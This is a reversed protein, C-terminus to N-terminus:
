HVATPAVAASTTAGAGIKGERFEEGTERMARLLAPWDEFDTAFIKAVMRRTLEPVLRNLTVPAYGMEDVLRAWYLNNSDWSEALLRSSYGSFAPFPKVNLLERAYSQALTRHPVGFDRSLRDWSLEQPSQRYLGDLAQGSSGWASKDDPFRRRFEATLYFTDAPTVQALAEKSRGSRLEQELELAREPVMRDAFINMVKKRLDENSAAATILEEGAVQHLAVAHLETKSVDWWRPLIANGLLIPVTERWILAQVNEPAIFDQEAESLAYPLDALSGVFHAGGGAPSGQGFLQPSRWLGEVGAVTEGSFDHSRVLLSNTRLLQAAPPEYYAYNLGVLTDRLFPTLEGRAEELQKASPSSKLVKTLDTQMQLETHRNNYTGAAWETRESSTFMPRPMEFERLEGALPLLSSGAVKGRAVDNLGKGLEVLTDLSVLRQGDMVSRIGKAVEEHVRQGEPDPQRPGALLEIIDDESITSRGTAARLVALLSNNGADFLQGPGSVASFPKVAERWSENLKASSIQGQRALIQWIGLNAQFIGMSNGRLTHGPIKNITDAAHIFAAISADDLQPFESFVLYQDSYDNFRKAMLSLTDLKLRHGPGRKSDLETFLLYMQLPSVDSDLRSFAFMAETVQDPHNWHGARKAWERVLKSDAKRNIVDKWLEVGGPVLPQGDAGWQLRNLLILLAPARRFAPRAADSSIDTGRFASYFTKLRHSQALHQQQDASVRALSDFYAALWGNDKTLLRPVFESPSAPSAGALEKWDAEAATGGPVEVHGSRISIQSGYFDLYASLPLLKKLGISHYLEERTGTDTRSIAWYLRALGPHRILLELLDDSSGKNARIAGKWDNEGFLLPVRSAPYQYTFPKNEQMAEELALLPFGSDITLFARDPDSTIVTANKQGCAQRMRYGLIRLLPSAQECNSVRITSDAGALESLEKAQKVYRGLLVLFETPRGNDQWGVYGQVYVNRAFLPLVEESSAKQSIGAMRLFSRLPGPIILESSSSLARSEAPRVERQDSSVFKSTSQAASLCCTAILFIVALLGPLRVSRKM